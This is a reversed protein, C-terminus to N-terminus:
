RKQAVLEISYEGSSHIDPGVDQWGEDCVKCYIIDCDDGLASKVLPLLGLTFPLEEQEPLLFFKHDGNWRSPLSKQKEYLDRHPAYIILFGGSKLIRFWNKVALYPNDIHEICHSSYVFDYTEDVVGSMFTADGDDKDWGDVTPLIADAGTISDIRGVGIDIGKGQCYLQFFDERERRSRAKATEAM